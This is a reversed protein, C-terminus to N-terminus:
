ALEEAIADGARWGLWVEGEGGLGGVSARDLGYIAPRASVRLEPEDPWAPGVPDALLAESDWRRVPLPQRELVGDSFPLLDRLAREIRSTGRREAEPDDIPVVVSALLDFGDVRRRGRFVRLAVSEGDESDRWVVRDAMSPALQERPGRFHLTHRRWRIPPAQLLEPVPDEAAAAIAATPANLLLARGTWIEKSGSVALGPQNSVSVLRFAGDLVRFEGYLTEIRRRLLGRLHGDGGSMGVGGRLLGGILRARAESSPERAGLNSLARVPADLVSRLAPPMDDCVRPWGRETASRRAPTLAERARRAARLLQPAELLASRETEAADDLAQVWTRADERSALGWSSWEEATHTNRGLDVRREADCVQLAVEESVFRRQDILAIGMARLCEALLGQSEADVLLFPERVFDDGGAAREELILVRLGRQGLRVAAVLGPLASGLMLVDWRRVRYADASSISPFGRM